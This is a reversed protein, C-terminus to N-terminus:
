MVGLKKLIYGIIALVFAGIGVKSVHKEMRRVSSVWKHNDQWEERGSICMRLQEHHRWHEEPEVWFNKRQEDLVEHLAAKVEAITVPESM